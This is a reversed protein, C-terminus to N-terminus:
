LVGVVKGVDAIKVAQGNGDLPMCWAAIGKNGCVANGVVILGYDLAVTGLQTLTGNLDLSWTGSPRRVIILDGAVLSVFESDTMTMILREPGGAVPVAILQDNGSFNRRIIVQNGVIGQVAENAPHAALVVRDTGDDEVSLVDCGTAPEGMHVNCDHYVVRHGITAALTTYSEDTDLQVPTGGDLRTAFLHSYPPLGTLGPDGGQDWQGYIVARETIYWGRIGLPHGDAFYTRAADTATTDFVHYETVFMVRDDRYFEAGYLAGGDDRLLHRAGTDLRQSWVEQNFDNSYLLRPGRADWIREDENTNVVVRDGTGDTRVTWIDDDFQTKTRTYFVNGESVLLNFQQHMNPMSFILQQGQGNAKGRQLGQNTATLMDPQATPTAPPPASSTTSSDGGGSCGTLLVLGILAIFKRTM